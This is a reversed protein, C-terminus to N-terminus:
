YWGSQYGRRFSDEFRMPYRGFHRRYDNSLGRSRDLRGYRVGDEYTERDYYGSGGYDPRHDDFDPYSRRYGREYGNEFSAWDRGSVRHRHRDPNYSRHDRRDERGLTEGLTWAEGSDDPRYDPRPPPGGPGGPPYGPGPPYPTTVICSSLTFLAVAGCAFLSVPRNM